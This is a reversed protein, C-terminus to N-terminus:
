VAIIKIASFPLAEVMHNSKPPDGERQLAIKKNFNLNTGEEFDILDDDLTKGNILWAETVVAFQASLEDFYDVLSLIKPGLSM